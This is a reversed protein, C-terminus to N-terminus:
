SPPPYKALLERYYDSISHSPDKSHLYTARQSLRQLYEANSAKPVEIRKLVGSVRNNSKDKIMAKSSRVIYAGKARQRLMDHKTQKKALQNRKWELNAFWKTWLEGKMDLEIFFKPLFEKLSALARCTGDEFRRYQKTVKLYGAKIIMEMARLARKFRIDAYFALKRLTIGKFSGDPMLRGVKGTADCVYYLMAQLLKICAERRQSKVKRKKEFYIQLSTLQKKPKFYAKSLRVISEQITKARSKHDDPITFFTPKHPLHGCYNPWPLQRLCVKQPMSGSNITQSSLASDVKAPIPAGQAPIRGTYIM